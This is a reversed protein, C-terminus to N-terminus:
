LSGSDAPRLGILAGSLGFTPAIAGRSHISLWQVPFRVGVPVRVHVTVSDIIKIRPLGNGSGPFRSSKGSEVARVSTVPAILIISLSPFVPSDLVHINSGHNTADETTLSQRNGTSHANAKRQIAM